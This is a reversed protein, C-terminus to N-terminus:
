GVRVGLTIMGTYGAANPTARMTLAAREIPSLSNYIGDTTNLTNRTGRAAYPSLAHVETTLSEDFFFQSTFEYSANAGAFLRLKFHIHVSRGPYWGPYITTFRAMGDADTIQYGRLFRRGATPGSVDSYAGDADCHWVDLYAGTLPTCAIADVRTVYFALDLPVGDAVMASGPDPRIDSRLLQEDVFFPGQTLAATLVCGPPVILSEDGEFLSCGLLSPSVVVSVASGAALGLMARRTMGRPAPHKTPAARLDDM